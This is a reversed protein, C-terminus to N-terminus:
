LGFKAQRQASQEATDEPVNEEPKGQLSVYYREIQNNKFVKWQEENMQLTNPEPVNVTVPRATDVKFSFTGLELNQLEEITAGTEKSMVSLTQVANKGTIKVNTVSLFASQMKPDMDSIFQTAAIMHLGYKRNERLIEIISPALFNQVEDLVLFVPRPETDIMSRKQIAGKIRAILFRGFATSTEAGVAGKALNVILIKGQDLIGELDVSSSTRAIMQAFLPSNLLSQLKTYLSLKTTDFKKEMFAKEFFAAVAQNPSSRGTEILDADNQLFRQLDFFNQEGLRILTSICPYLLAHMNNTLDTGGSGRLLEQFTAVIEESALHISHDDKDKLDLPNFVPLAKKDLLPDIYIMRDSPFDADKAIEKAMNGAPDIVVIGCTQNKVCARVLGKLFTSKGAGSNATILVHRELAKEPLYFPLPNLFFRCIPLNQSLLLSLYSREDCKDRAQYHQKLTKKFSDSLFFLETFPDRTEALHQKFDRSEERILGEAARIERQYSRFAKFTAIYDDFQIFNREIIVKKVEPYLASCYLLNQILNLYADMVSIIAKPGLQIPSFTGVNLFGITETLGHEPYPIGLYSYIIEEKQM